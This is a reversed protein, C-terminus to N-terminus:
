WSSMSTQVLQFQLREVAELPVATMRDTYVVIAICEDFARLNKILPEATNDVHRGLLEYFAHENSDPSNLMWDCVLARPVIKQRFLEVLLGIAEMRNRAVHPIAHVKRLEASVWEQAQADDDVILIHSGSLM